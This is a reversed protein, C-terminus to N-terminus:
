RQLGRAEGEKSQRSRLMPLAQRMNRLLVAAQMLWHRLDQEASGREQGEM